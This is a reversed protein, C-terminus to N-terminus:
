PDQASSAETAACVSSVASSAHIGSYFAAPLPDLVVPGSHAGTSRPVSARSPPAFTRLRRRLRLVQSHRGSGINQLKLLRTSLVDGIEISPGFVGSILRCGGCCRGFIAIQRRM